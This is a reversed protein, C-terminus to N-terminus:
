ARRRAFANYLFGGLAGLLAAAVLSIVLWGIDWVGAFVTRVPAQVSPLLSRPGLVGALSACLSTIRSALEALGAALAGDLVGAPATMWGRGGAWAAALAGVLLPLGLGVVLALPAVICGLVPVRDAMILLVNVVLGVILGILAAFLINPKTVTMTSGPQDDRDLGGQGRRLPGPETERQSPLCPPSALTPKQYRHIRGWGVQTPKWRNRRVISNYPSRRRPPLLEGVREKWRVAPTRRLCGGSLGVRALM